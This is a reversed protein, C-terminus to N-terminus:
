EGEEAAAQSVQQSMAPTAGFEPGSQEPIMPQAMQAMEQQKMAFLTSVPLEPQFFMPYEALEQMESLFTLNKKAREFMLGELVTIYIVVRKQSDISTKTKFSTEQLSKTFISYHVMLDEWIKPEVEKTGELLYQLNTRAANVAITAKDKFYEDTGLDLMEVIEEKRFIPDTQTAINLDIIAAIKGTKTDPLSSTNQLQVDYIKSFDAKKMSEILYENGKGLTRVTRDDSPKYFQKMVSLMMKYTDLVTQKRKQEQVIIRQSEQEDLFRLASNATVGSPVEGRSIDYVASLQSIKAELRDQIEYNGSTTPNNTVMQPPVAGTYEMVTFENNISHIDVAGKPMVWKPAAGIGFDRAIGSQINNYMRQMQEVNSIYSRGWLEGYVDIDTQPIFPLEGHEFPFDEKELIVSDTYIIKCGKPLFKTPKHWFTRVM